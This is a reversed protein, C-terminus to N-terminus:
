AYSALQRSVAHVQMTAVMVALFASPLVLARIRHSGCTPWRRPQRLTGFRHGVLAVAMGTLISQFYGGIRRVISQGSPNTVVYEAISNEAFSSFTTLSGCFGTGVGSKLAKSEIQCVTVFGMVLCGLFNAFIFDQNEFDLPVIEQLGLRALCGLVAGIGISAATTLEGDERASQETGEDGGVLPLMPSSNDSQM